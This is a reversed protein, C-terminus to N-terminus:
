VNVSGLRAQLTEIELRRRKIYQANVPRTPTSSTLRALARARREQHKRTKPVAHPKKTRSPRHEIENVNSM